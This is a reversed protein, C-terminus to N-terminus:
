GHYDKGRAHSCHSRQYAVPLPETITSTAV